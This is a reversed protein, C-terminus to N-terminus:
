PWREVPYATTPVVVDNALKDHWTQKEKDWLMWLYGLFCPIASLYRSVARIAARGHGISGGGGFDFVRISLARKGPTQGSASGEFYTFYGIWILLGLAGGLGQGLVLRLISSVVGLILADIFFAGFRRWFGARPGSPGGPAAQTAPPAPQFPESM